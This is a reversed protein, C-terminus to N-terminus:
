LDLEEVAALPAPVSAIPQFKRRPIFVMPEFDEPDARDTRGGFGISRLDEAGPITWYTGIPFKVVLVFPIGTDNALAIGERVKGLSIMFESFTASRTKIEVWAIPKSDRLLVWSVRYARPIKRATAGWRAAMDLAVELEDALTEASQYIPRSM